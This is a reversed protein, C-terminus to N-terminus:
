RLLLKCVNKKKNKKKEMYVAPHSGVMNVFIEPKYKPLTRLQELPKGSEGGDM